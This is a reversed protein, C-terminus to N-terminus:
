SIYENTCLCAQWGEWFGCVPSGVYVVVCPYWDGVCLSALQVMVCKCAQWGIQYANGPNGVIGSPVFTEYLSVLWINLTALMVLAKM